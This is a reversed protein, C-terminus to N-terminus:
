QSGQQMGRRVSDPTMNFDMSQAVIRDGNCRPCRKIGQRIAESKTIKWGCGACMRVEDSLQRASQMTRHSIADKREEILRRREEPSLAM